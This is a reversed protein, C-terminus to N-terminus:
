GSRKELLGPFKIRERKCSTVGRKYLGTHGVERELLGM